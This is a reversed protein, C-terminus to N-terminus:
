NIQSEFLSYYREFNLEKFLVIQKFFAEIATVKTAYYKRNLTQKFM